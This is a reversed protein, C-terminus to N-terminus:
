SYPARGALMNEAVWTAQVGNAATADAGIERALDPRGNFVPGGVIVALSANRSAQRLRPLARALPPIHAEASVSFGLVGYWDRRLMDCLDAVSEQHATTVAWGAQGFFAGVIALGFRHDDGPAPALLIRHRRRAEPVTDGALGTVANLGDHLRMMAITVDAFSATDEMWMEGLQRAAPQLLHLCLTELTLHAAQDIIHRRAASDDAALAFAVLELVDAAPAPAPLDGATQCLDPPTRAVLLRPVIQDEITRVLAERRQRTASRAPATTMSFCIDGHGATGVQQM